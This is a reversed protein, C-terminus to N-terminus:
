FINLMHNPSPNRQMSQHALLILQKAHWVWTAPSHQCWPMYKTMVRYEILISYPHIHNDPPKQKTGPIKKPSFSHWIAYLWGPKSFQEFRFREPAPSTEWTSPILLLLLDTPSKTSFFILFCNVISYTLLTILFDYCFFVREPSLAPLICCQHFIVTIRALLLSASAWKSVQPLCVSAQLGLTNSKATQWYSDANSHEHDVDFIYFMDLININLSITSPGGLAWSRQSARGFRATWRVFKGARHSPVCTKWAGGWGFVVEQGM